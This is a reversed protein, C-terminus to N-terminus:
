LACLGTQIIESILSGFDDRIRINSELSYDIRKEKFPKISILYVYQFMSVVLPVDNKLSVPIGYLIKGEGDSHDEEEAWKQLCCFIM